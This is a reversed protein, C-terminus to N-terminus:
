MINKLLGKMGSLFSETMETKLGHEIALENETMWEQSVYELYADVRERDSDGKLEKGRETKRRVSGGPNGPNRQNKPEISVEFIVKAKEKFEESLEEGGLLLTSMKKSIMSKKKLRKPLKKLNPVVEEEELVEDESVEIEEKAM